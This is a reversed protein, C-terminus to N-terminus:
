AARLAAPLRVTARDRAPRADLLLAPWRITRDTLIEAGAYNDPATTVSGGAAIQPPVVASESHEFEIVRGCITSRIISEDRSGQPFSILCSLKFSHGRAQARHRCTNGLAVFHDTNAFTMVVREIGDRLVL